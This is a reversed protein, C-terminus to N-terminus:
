KRVEGNARVLFLGNHQQTRYTLTGNAGADTDHAVITGPPFPFNNYYGGRKAHERTLLYEHFSFYNEVM